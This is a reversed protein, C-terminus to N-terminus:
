KQEGYEEPKLERIVRCREVRFKGDTGLPIAVIDKATFECLLIKQSDGTKEKLCWDLTALNIGAGCQVNEDYECDAKKIRITEGIKYEVGGRHKGQYNEGVLKFGNLTGTALRMGHLPSTTFKNIGEANCLDTYRLDTYRLSAYRLSANCLNAYRLNANCLNAYRLNANCLNAYRLDANHLNANCLNAYRLNAYRLDANHLNANHLNAYRLDANCLNVSMDVAERIADKIKNHKSEFLVEGYVSKIKM